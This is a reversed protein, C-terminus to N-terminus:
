ILDAMDSWVEAGTFWVGDIETLTDTGTLAGTVTITGDANATFTYDSASGDYIIQDYTDATGILTDNGLSAFFQDGGGNGIITEDGDTGFLDEGDTTGIITTDGLNLADELAYWQQEGIFYFGDIDTLTDVDGNAATVTVTGDANLALTYDSLAGDYNAQDYVGADGILTDNGAGGIFEDSGGNGIMIDNGDTGTLVDDGNTGVINGGSLALLDDISYWAQEDNFWVGEISTLTDVDKDESKVSITGNTNRTFIYDGAAGDYEIQDYIGEAGYIQDNGASGIFIDGGGNGLIVDDGSTGFLVDEGSTGEILNSGQAVLAEMSFWQQDGNFWVGDISTLTDRGNLEGTVSITGDANLSFTYDALAGSLNLQDYTGANGLLTDNGLSEYFTDSGGNGIITDDGRSGFLDDDGATGTITGGVPILLEEASFWRNDGGFWIGDIGILTDTGTNASVAKISGDSNLTFTYDEIFGFYNVQDYANLDGVMVDDGLSEEFIDGGDKGQILDSEDTGLFTDAGSTGIIVNDTVNVGIMLAVSPVGADDIAFLMWYGPVTINPNDPVTIRITTADIIEFSLDLFRGDSNRSHTVAGPKIFSMQAISFADDVTIIIDDTTRIREPGGTIEPRDAFTGDENFLYAPNFVEGNLNTLPGPAGGGLSLVTGDALLLGASHYLRALAEDDQFTISNDSPDFLAVERAVGVLTNNGVSGGTIVVTGDPLISMNSERRAQGVSGVNEFVPTNGSFDLTWLNGRNDMILALDTGIMISPTDDTTTFPLNGIQTMSGTGDTDLIFVKTNNATGSSEIVLVTGDSKLWSRPYWWDGAITSNAAGTLTTWGEGPTYFEPTGVGRGAGDRGGITLITGDGLTLVANYWREFAMDGFESPTLSNDRYDFVNVDDIGVNINGNPRNDGGSILIEGTAAVLAMNSCFIDTGTTNALTFHQGTVPDWVDYIFEGSQMGREDTGFSLVIGNPLVMAHIGNLPWDLLGSWEGDGENDNVIPGAEQIPGTKQTEAKLNKPSTFTLTTVGTDAPTLTAFHLAQATVDGLAPLTSLASGLEFLGHLHTRTNLDLM